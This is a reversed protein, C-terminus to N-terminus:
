RVQLELVLASLSGREGLHSVSPEDPVTGSSVALRNRDAPLVTDTVRFPTPGGDSARYSTRAIRAM